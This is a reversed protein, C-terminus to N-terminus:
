YEPVRRKIKQEIITLLKESYRELMNNEQSAQLSGGLSESISRLLDQIEIIDQSSEELSMSYEPDAPNTQDFFTKVDLLSSKLDKFGQNYHQKSLKFSQSM